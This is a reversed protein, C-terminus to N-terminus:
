RRNGKASFPERVECIAPGRVRVRVRPLGAKELRGIVLGRTISRPMSASGAPTYALILRSIRPWVRQPDRAPSAVDELRICQLPPTSFSLRLVLASKEDSDGGGRPVGLIVVILLDFGTM